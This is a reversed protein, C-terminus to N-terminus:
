SDECFSRIMSGSCITEFLPGRQRLCKKFNTTPQSTGIGNHVYAKHSESKRLLDLGWLPKFMEYLSWEWFGNSNGSNKGRIAEVYQLFLFSRGAKTRLPFHSFHVVHMQEWTLLSRPLRHDNQEWQVKNMAGRHQTEPRRWPSTAQRSASSDVRARVSDMEDGDDWFSVLFFFFVTVRRSTTVQQRERRWVHCEPFCFCFPFFFKVEQPTVPSLRSNKVVKWFGCISTLTKNVDM